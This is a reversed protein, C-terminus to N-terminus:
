IFRFQPNLKLYHHVKLNELLSQYHVTNLETGWVTANNRLLAVVGTGRGAFPELVRQGPAVVPRIIFDWVDQPKGFPHGLAGCLDDRSAIVHSTGVPERLTAGPMRCVMAIETSKTFNFSAAMNQCRHTKVWTIPWRQVAFGAKEALEKMFAWLDQDCWTILFGGQRLTYFAAPFFRTMLKTVFDVDHEKSVTDIDVMGQDLMSMEQGYPIDTIIHDFFAEREYMFTVCDENRFHSTLNVVLRAQELAQKGKWYEEFGNPDNLPNMRYRELAEAKAADVAERVVMQQAAVAPVASDAGLVLDALAQAENAFSAEQQRRALEALALEEQKRLRLRWADAMSEAKWLPSNEDKLERAIIICYNTHTKEMGFLEGTQRMGWPAGGLAAKRQKLRHITAINLCREQWTMDKRRVNEELEMEYLQDEGLTEKYVADIETWGLRQAAALRRGGAILRNNQDIVVPQILGYARLSEALKDLDGYDQRQRDVVQITAIPIKM